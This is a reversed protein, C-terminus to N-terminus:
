SSITWSYFHLTWKYVSHGHTQSISSRQALQLNEMSVYFEHNKKLYLHVHRWPCAFLSEALPRTHRSIVDERSIYLLFCYVCCIGGYTSKEGYHSGESYMSLYVYYFVIAWTLNWVSNRASNTSTGKEAFLVVPTVRLPLHFCFHLLRLVELM